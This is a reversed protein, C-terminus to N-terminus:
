NDADVDGEPEDSKVKEWEDEDVASGEANFIDGAHKRLEEDPAQSTEDGEAARGLDMRSRPVYDGLLELALKRDSHGKYDPDTAVEVLAEYIDARHEWLPAAQLMAIADDIRPDSKRWESIQRPGTLGLVKEALEAQTEPWRDIKPSSAWAIYCAIRWNKFMEKLKAYHEFWKPPEEAWHEGQDLVKRASESRRKVEAYSPAGEDVEVEEVDLDMALQEIEHWDFKKVM